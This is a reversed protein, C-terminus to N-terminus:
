GASLASACARPGLSSRPRAVPFSRPPPRPRWLAFVPPPCLFSLPPPSSPPLSLTSVGFLALAIRLSRSTARPHASTEPLHLGAVLHRWRALVLRPSGGTAATQPSASQKLPVSDSSGPHRTSLTLQSLNMKFPKRRGHVLLLPSVRSRITLQIRRITTKQNNRAIQSRADPIGHRGGTIATRNPMGDRRPNEPCPFPSPAAPHRPRLALLFASIAATSKGGEPRGRPWRRTINAQGQYALLWVAGGAGMCRKQSSASLKSAEISPRWEGSIRTSRLCIGGAPWYRFPTHSM